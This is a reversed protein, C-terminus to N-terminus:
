TDNLEEDKETEVKGKKRATQMARDEFSCYILETCAANVAVERHCVSYGETWHLHTAYQESSLSSRFM